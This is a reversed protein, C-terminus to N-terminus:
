PINAGYTSRVLFGQYITIPIWSFTIPIKRLIYSLVQYITIPIWFSTIPIRRVTSHVISVPINNDPVQASVAVEDRCLGMSWHFVMSQRPLQCFATRTVSELLVVILWFPGKRSGCLYNSLSVKYSQKYYIYFCLQITIITLNRTTWGGNTIIQYVHPAAEWQKEHKEVLIPGISALSTDISLRYLLNDDTNVMTKNNSHKSCRFEDLIAFIM